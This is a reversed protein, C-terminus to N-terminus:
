RKLSELYAQMFADRDQEAVEQVITTVDVFDIVDPLPPKPQIKSRYEYLSPAYRTEKTFLDRLRVSGAYMPHRM